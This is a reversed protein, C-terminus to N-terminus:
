GPHIWGAMGGGHACLDPAIAGGGWQDDAQLIM